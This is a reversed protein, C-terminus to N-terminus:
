SQIHVIAEDAKSEVIRELQPEVAGFLSRSSMWRLGAFAGLLGVFFGVAARADSEAGIMLALAIGSVLPLGYLLLAGLSLTSRPISIEVRDNVSCDAAKLSDSERARVLGKDSTLVGALTRHGCGSRAACSGCASSRITEIWVAAGELAVVRGTEVITM